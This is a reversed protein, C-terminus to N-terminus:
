TVLNCDWTATESKAAPATPMPRLPRAACCCSTSGCAKTNGNKDLLALLEGAWHRAVAAGTAGDLLPLLMILATEAVCRYRCILAVCANRTLLSAAAAIAAHGPGQGAVGAAVFHRTLRLWATSRGSM